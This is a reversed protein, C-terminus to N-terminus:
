CNGMCVCKTYPYRDCTDDHSSVKVVVVFASNCEFQGERNQKPSGAAEWRSRKGMRGDGALDRTRERTDEWVDRGEAEM